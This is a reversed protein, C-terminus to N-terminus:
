KGDSEVDRFDQLDNDTLEKDDTLEEGNDLWGWQLKEDDTLEENSSVGSDQEAGLEEKQRGLIQTIVAHGEM